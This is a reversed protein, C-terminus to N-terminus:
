SFSLRKRYNELTRLSQPSWQDDRYTLVTGADPTRQSVALFGGDGISTNQVLFARASEENAVRVIDSPTAAHAPKYTVKINRTGNAFNLTFKEAGDVRFIRRAPYSEVFFDDDVTLEVGDEVIETEGRETADDSIWRALIISRCGGDHFETFTKATNDATSFGIDTPGFVHWDMARSVQPIIAAIRTDFQTDPASVGIGLVEKVAATTTYDTDPM